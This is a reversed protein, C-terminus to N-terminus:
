RYPVGDVGFNAGATELIGPEGHGPHLGTQPPFRRLLSGVSEHLAAADGGPLDSRGRGDALLTDGTFLQGDILFCVSGPSHGPTHLVGINLKGFQLGERDALDIGIPPVAIPPKRDFAYRSLNIRELVKSDGSHIALPVGYRALLEGAAGVHDHHGHTALVAHLRLGHDSLHDVIEEADDGPDIVVAEGGSVSAVYCNQDWPELTFRHIKVETM